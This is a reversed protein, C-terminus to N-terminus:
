HLNKYKFVISRSSTIGAATVENFMLSLASERNIISLYKYDINLPGTLFSLENEVLALRTIAILKSFMM